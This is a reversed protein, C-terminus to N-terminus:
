AVGASRTRVRAVEMGVICVDDSFPRGGAFGVIERSLHDILIDLPLAARRHISERLRKETFSECQPNEVEFLGDTFALICDGEAVTLNNTQYRIHDLLGLAPGSKFHGNIAEVERTAHRVLLPSPHGANAYALRGTEVDVTLYCATTFLTTGLHRLIDRLSQNMRTLLAGPDSAAESLQEELARMMATVLAARVGHGMVDCIFIGVASDSIRVVNYFDGSVSATPHFISCFRVDSAAPASGRPLTPFSSPLFAMQLERAMELDEEMITNKEWLERTRDAVRQELEAHFKRLNEAATAREIAISVVHTAREIMEMEFASPHRPERYYIAFTGFIRGSGSRIPTSWCARLEHGLAIERYAAWLPDKAIDSVIVQRNEFAATGCSGVAPGIATGHIARNYSEPLSPAGGHKLHVGDEDLLLVSCLAGPTQAELGLMLQDLVEHLSKASVILELASKEWALLQQAMKHATIETHSVIAGGTNGVPHLVEMSFWRPCAPADCPYEMSFRPQKGEIVSKLGAVAALAHPNEEDCASKCVDLYNAGVGIKGADPAGNNQAFRLWPENVAAIRGDNSLVAIHAPLSDLIAKLLTESAQPVTQSQDGPLRRTRTKGAQNRIM